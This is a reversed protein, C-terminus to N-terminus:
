ITIKYTGVLFVLKEGVLVFVSIATLSNLSQGIEQTRTQEGADKWASAARDTELMESDSEILAPTRVIQSM